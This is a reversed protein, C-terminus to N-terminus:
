ASPVAMPVSIRAPGGATFAKRSGVPLGVQQASYREPVNEADAYFRNSLKGSTISLPLSDLIVEKAATQALVDERQQAQIIAQAREFDSYQEGKRILNIITEVAGLAPYGSQFKWCPGFYVGRSPYPGLRSHQLNWVEPGCKAFQWPTLWRELIYCKLGAYLPLWRFQTEGEPKFLFERSSPWVVRWLNEGYPNAGFKALSGGVWLVPKREPRDLFLTDVSTM